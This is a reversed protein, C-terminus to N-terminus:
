GGQFKRVVPVEESLMALMELLIARQLSADDPRGLPYGMPFPVELVRPPALRATVESLLSVSATAIGRKEVVSQILGM